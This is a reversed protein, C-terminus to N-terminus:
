KQIVERVQRVQQIHLRDHGAMISVLERLQTPGFIAHRAPLSWDESKLHGLLSLVRKRTEIFTDLAGSCDQSIYHRQEAWPDTDMGPLFPNTEEVIKQLRPLNVESDVDRLHCFIETLSWEDPKPRRNWDQVPIENELRSLAAPTAQLIALYAEPSNYKPQLDDMSQTDLWPLLGSISGSANPAHAGGPRTTEEPTIWYAALGAQRAPIIDMALDNGVMVVPGDPWSLRALLEAFFAPNPKAFHFTEYDPVLVFPYKEVPLCAWQLRQLIATRPFIPNTAIAVRYGRQLAGEVMKVAEPNHQTANRLTPFVQKYFDNIAGQVKEKKIGLAPYFVSDFTEQLTHDIRQSQMMQRTSAMLTKVLLDPDSYPLMHKALAKTYVGVFADVDNGLLTGDLDLLLTLTM